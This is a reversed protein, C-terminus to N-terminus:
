DEDEFFDRTLRTENPENLIAELEAKFIPHMEELWQGLPLEQQARTSYWATDPHINVKLTPGRFM